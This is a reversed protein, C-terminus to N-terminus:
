PLGKLRHAFNRLPRLARWSLSDWLGDIENPIARSFVAAGRGLTVEPDACLACILQTHNQTRWETTSAGSSRLRLVSFRIM